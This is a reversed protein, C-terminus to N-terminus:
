KPRARAAAACFRDARRSEAAARREIAALADRLDQTAREIPKDFIDAVLSLTVSPSGNEDDLWDTDDELAIWLIAAQYRAM